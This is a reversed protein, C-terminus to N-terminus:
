HLAAVSTSGAIIASVVVLSALEASDNRAGAEVLIYVGASSVVSRGHFEITRRSKLLDLLAKVGAVHQEVLEAVLQSM